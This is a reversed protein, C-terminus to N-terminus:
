FWSCRGPAASPPLRERLLHDEHGPRVQCDDDDWDDHHEAESCPYHQDEVGVAVGEPLGVGRGGGTWAGARCLVPGAREGCRGCRGCRLRNGCSRCVRTCRCGLGRQAWSGLQRGWQTGKGMPCGRAM